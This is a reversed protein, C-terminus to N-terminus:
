KQYCFPFSFNESEFIHLSFDFCNESEYYTTYQELFKQFIISFGKYNRFSELEGLIVSCICIKYCRKSDLHVRSLRFLTNLTNPLFGDNPAGPFHQRIACDIKILASFRLCVRLSSCSKEMRKHKVKSLRAVTGCVKQSLYQLQAKIHWHDLRKYRQLM